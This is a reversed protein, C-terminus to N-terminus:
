KEYIIEGSEIETMFSNDEKSKLPIIDIPLIKAIKRTLRRYKMSLPLYKQDSDQFVAVDIDQPTNSNLFSGFVVVKTIESETSLLSRLEHKIGDKQRKTFTM